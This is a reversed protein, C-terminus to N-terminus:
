LQDNLLGNNYYQITARLSKELGDIPKELPTNLPFDNKIDFYESKDPRLRLAFSDKLIFYTQDSLLVVQDGTKKFISKGFLPVKEQIQFLDLLTPLIDAQQVIKQTDVKPWQISPSYLILPIRYRGLTNDYQAKYPLQTHDAVFIFLTNPYWDKKAIQDMFKQIAMDTYAVTQLIPIKGQPLTKDYPPPLKYPHHSTLTFVASLFPKSFQDLKQSMFQLFPEDYIGWFDDTYTEKPMHQPDFSESSYYHDFGVKKTFLDFYMTGPLGGHFFSTHYGYKKFINGLGSFEDNFYPTTVLANSMLSPIGSTISSIAEISRRGNAYTNEFYLGKQALSTLYPAFELYENSFSELIVIIINMKKKLLNGQWLSPSSDAGNLYPILSQMNPFDKKEELLHKTEGRFLTFTSNLVMQNLYSSEFQIAHAIALPKRQLGGRIALIFFILSLFICLFYKSLNWEYKKTSLKQSLKILCFVFFLNILVQIFILFGYTFIFGSIKGQAEHFFNLNGITMRRGLFNSFEIDVQNIALFTLNILISLFVLVRLQINEFKSFSLLSLLFVPLNTIVVAYLDFRLGSFFASFIENAVVGHFSQHNWLFYILREVSYFCMTIVM